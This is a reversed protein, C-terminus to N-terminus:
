NRRALVVLTSALSPMLSLLKDLVDIMSVKNTKIWSIGCGNSRMVSFGHYALLQQLTDLTYLRQHGSIASTVGLPYKYRFEASLDIGLPPYGLLVLIRNTWSVCNPTSLLLFGNSSLCRRIEKLVIDPKNLHEITQLMLILDFYGEPYPLGQDVSLCISKIGNGNAKRCAEPNLDIGHMEEAQLTEALIKTISGEGCGIDLLKRARIGELIKYYTQVRHKERNKQIVLSFLRNKM